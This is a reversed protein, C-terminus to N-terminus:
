AICAVFATNAIVRWSEFLDEFHELGYEEPPFTQTDGVNVSLFVLYIMPYLVLTGCFVIILASVFGQSTPLWRWGTRSVPVAGNAVIDTVAGRERAEVSAACRLM